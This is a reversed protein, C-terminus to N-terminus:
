PPSEPAVCGFTWSKGKKTSLCEREGQCCKSNGGNPHHCCEGGSKKCRKCFESRAQAVDPPLTFLGVVSALIGVGVLKLMKRRSLAGSVMGKALEDFSSSYEEPLDQQDFPGRNRDASAM